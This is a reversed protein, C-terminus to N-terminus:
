KLEIVTNYLWYMINDICINYKRYFIKECIIHFFLFMDNIEIYVINSVYFNHVRM